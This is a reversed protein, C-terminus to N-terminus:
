SIPVNIIKAASPVGQNNLLHLYYHGPPLLNRNYPIKVRYGGVVVVPRALENFRQNMDLSHTESPLRILTARTIDASLTQVTFTEGYLVQDSGRRSVIGDIVPRDGKFLYPPSYLEADPHDIFADKKGGGAVLVRGDPLLVAASHYIRPVQMSAVTQWRNASPSWIQPALIAKTEDPDHGAVVEGYSMTGGVRFVNGDPLMILMHDVAPQAMSSVQRWVPPNQNLDIAECTPTVPPPIVRRDAGGCILIKGPRYMVPVGATRFRRWGPPHNLNASTISGSGHTTLWYSVPQPGAIFVRGDPALFVWPYQPLRKNAGTLDRFTGDLGWVQPIQNELGRGQANKGMGGAIVLQEGNALPCNTPYYRKNNTPIATGWTGTRWDYAAAVAAGNLVGGAVLLKGDPLFAHGSCFLDDMSPGRVYTNTIPNWTIVPEIGNYDGRSWGFVEGNPLVSLHVAVTGLESEENTGWKFPPSWQGICAPTVNDPPQTCDLAETLWPSFLGGALAVLFVVSTLFNKFISSM